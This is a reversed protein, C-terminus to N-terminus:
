FLFGFQFSFLRMLNPNHQPDHDIINNIFGNHYFIGMLLSTKEDMKYEFGGGVGLRIDFFNAHFGPISQGVANTMKLINEKDILVLGGDTTPISDSFTARASVTIDISFGVQGWACFGSERIDNTKLKVYIPLELYQFTYKEIVNRVQTGASDNDFAARGKLNCGDLMGGLGTSLGYNKTFWYEFLFGYHLGFRPAGNQVTTGPTQAWSIGPSVALGLRIQDSFSFANTMLSSFVILTFIRKM